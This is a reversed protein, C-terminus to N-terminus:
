GGALPPPQRTGPSRLASLSRTDPRQRPAHPHRAGARAPAFRCARTRHCLRRPRPASPRRPRGARARSRRRGRRPRLQRLRSRAAARLHEERVSGTTHPTLAELEVLVDAGSSFLAALSAVPEAGHQRIFEPPVGASYVQVSVRFPKLLTLLALAIRGFGHIAVRRDFLTRGDGFGQRWGGREHLERGWHQTERLAALTLLLASEAVTEAAGDGWNTVRVGREIFSRPLLKRVSGTVHAVYRLYKPADVPLTPTSWHSVIVHPRRAVLFGAWDAGPTTPDFVDGPDVFSSLEAALAGPFFTSREAPSLAAVISM